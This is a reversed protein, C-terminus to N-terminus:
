GFIADAISTDSFLISAPAAAPASHQTAPKAAAIAGFHLSYNSATQSTSTANIYYLGVTLPGSYSADGSSDVPLDAVVSGDRNLLQVTAGDALGSFNFSPIVNKGVTFHYDDQTDFPNLSDSININSKPGIPGLNRSSSLKNGAKDVPLTTSTLNMSYDTGLSGIGNLKIYYTGPAIIDQYLTSQGSGATQSDIVHGSANLLQVVVSDILGGVSLTLGAKQTVQIRYYDFQDFPGVSDDIKTNFGPAVKGLNRATKLTNGAGDIRMVAITFTGVAAPSGSTVASITYTGNDNGEWQSGPSAAEFSLTATTANSSVVNQLVASQSYGNPGTVLIQTAEMIALDLGAPDSFIVNFSATSSGITAATATTTPQSNIVTPESVSVSLTNSTYSGVDDALTATINFPKAQYSFSHTAVTANGALSDIVGDGWDITWGELVHGPDTASLNLTYSSEVTASASGSIAVTPPLHLVSITLSNASYTGGADTATASITLPQSTYQYTHSVSSPDGSVAQIGTGDGWNIAWRSIVSADSEIASLSLTYPTTENVTSTGAITLTPATHLVIIMVTATSTQDFTDTVKLKIVFAGPQKGATFTPSVGTEDGNTAASGTEGFIGNGNLDWAYILGTGSSAAGSLVVTSGVNVTYPGGPNAIPLAANINVGFSNASYTGHQDSAQASITFNGPAAYTHSTSSPNGTITNSNGDGWNIVWQTITDSDVETGLLSLTYIGGPAGTSAGTVSLTPPVKNITVSRSTAAYTSVDDTASASITCTGAALYTHDVSSPNGSVVQTNGDGWNISWASIAHGALEVGSLGLTYVSNENVSSAGSLTLTPPIHNINVTVPQSAPYTSVNDTATASITYSHPGTAYTHTATSPNGSLNQPASGDGWTIVWGSISHAAIETASLNLTYVSGENVSSAGSITVMPPVHVVSVVISNGASYTNVDDTATASITDSQPGLAFTHTVSSPNGSVVQTNGDGWNISWGSVAHGALEVSALGLTYLSGENVSSAGSLTLTPAVHAVSVAITNSADYTGTGDTATASITYNNPGASYTHAVSSPDGTVNQTSGDGWTIFWSSITQGPDTASLSLTYSSQENTTSSGSISFSGVSSEPVTGSVTYQGVDGYQGYSEVVIYYNGASLTTTITQGLTNADDASAIINGSGDELVEQAHLTPGYPAVNVNLTVSGGTTTFSYFDTQNTHEIIGSASATDNSIGLADATGTTQGDEIARYGFGNNSGAIVAMDDQIDNYAQDNPGDWWLGRTSNLSNGMIPATDGNGPNYEEVLSTGSYVSQHNLGFAHGAEHAILEATEHPDGGVSASFVYSTNAQNNYFSGVESVGTEGSGDWSGDGGIVVRQAQQNNYSGPDVTTVDINFPSYVEAVRAWIQQINALEDASFTTPDGDTDYAPTAPIPALGWSEAPEGHFDLYLKASASPDSDLVPINTLPYLTGSLLCRRELSDLCAVHLLSRTRRCRNVSRRHRM